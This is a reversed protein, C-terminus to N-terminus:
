PVLQTAPFVTFETGEMFMGLAYFRTVSQPPRRGPNPRTAVSSIRISGVFDEAPVPPLEAILDAIDDILQTKAPITVTTTGVFADSIDFVTVDFDAAVNDDNVIAVVVTSLFEDDMGLPISASSSRAAPPITALGEAPTSGGPDFILLAIGTVAHDCTMTAYGVEVDPPDPIDLSVLAVSGQSALSLVGGNDIGTDPMGIPQVICTTPRGDVNTAVFVTDRQSGDGLEGAIVMPFVHFTGAEQASGFDTLLVLLLLSLNKTNQM